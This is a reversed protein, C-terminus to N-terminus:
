EQSQLYALGAAKDTVDLASKAPGVYIRAKIKQGSQPDFKDDSSIVKWGVSSALRELKALDTVQSPTYIMFGINAKTKTIRINNSFLFDILQKM